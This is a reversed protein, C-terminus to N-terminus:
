TKWLNLSVSPPQAIAKVLLDKEGILSTGARSAPSCTKEKKKKKREFPRKSVPKGRLQRRDPLNIQNLFTFFFRMRILWM